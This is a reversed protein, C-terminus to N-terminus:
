VDKKTRIAMMPEAPLVKLYRKFLLVPLFFRFIKEFMHKGYLMNLKAKVFEYVSVASFVANSPPSRLTGRM